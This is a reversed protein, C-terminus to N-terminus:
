LASDEAETNVEGVRTIRRIPKAIESRQCYPCTNRRMCWTKLCNAHFVHGCSINGVRDGIRLEQYCIACEDFEDDSHDETDEVREDVMVKYIRTKLRLAIPQKNRQPQQLQRSLRLQRVARADDRWEPDTGPLRRRMHRRFRINEAMLLFAKEPNRTLIRNALYNNYKPIILSVLLNLIDIGYSSFLLLAVIGLTCLLGVFMIRRLGNRYPSAGFCRTSESKSDCTELFMPCFATTQNLCTCSRAEISLTAEPPRTLFNSLSNAEYYEGSTENFQLRTPKDNMSCSGQFRSIYAESIPITICLLGAFFLRWTGTM